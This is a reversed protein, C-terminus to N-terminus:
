SLSITWFCVFGLVPQAFGFRVHFKQESRVLIQQKKMRIKRICLMFPLSLLFLIM